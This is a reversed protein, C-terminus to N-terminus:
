ECVSFDLNNVGLNFATFGHVSIFSNKLYPVFKDRKVHHSGTRDLSITHILFTVFANNAEIQRTLHKAQISDIGAM